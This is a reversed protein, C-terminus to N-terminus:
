RAAPKRLSDQELDLEAVPLRLVPATAAALAALSAGGAALDGAIM